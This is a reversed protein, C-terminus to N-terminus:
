PAPKNSKRCVERVIELAKAADYLGPLSERGDQIDRFFERCELAWSSDGMPYEWASTEPPGLQPLMKYLTLREVGYSGGLGDIQLKGDRGFIEFSFLNKWETCSAHLFAIAGSKNKASIFANDEVRMNWFYTPTACYDLEIEGLLSIAIEILHTGQDILEGGGSQAKDARWEKEYGIRGGHGYRARIFMLPGIEGNAILSHAKQIGPHYQHNYGIHLKLNNSTAIESMKLLELYRIAGPKEVFVHLGKQLAAISIKSLSDHKTSVVVADLNQIKLIQDLSDFATTQFKLAFEQSVKPLIDFCGILRVNNPLLEARKGGIVGCGIIAINM